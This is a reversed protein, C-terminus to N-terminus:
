VESRRIHSYDGAHREAVACGPENAIAAPHKLSDVEILNLELSVSELNFHFELTVFMSELNYFVGYDKYITLEACGFHVGTYEALCDEAHHFEPHTCHSFCEQLIVSIM